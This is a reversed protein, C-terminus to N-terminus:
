TKAPLYLGIAYVKMMFKTRVGAGNLVLDQQAIDFHLREEFRIGEVEIARAACSLWCLLVALTLVFGPRHITMHM